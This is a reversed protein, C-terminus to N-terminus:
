YDAFAACYKAWDGPAVLQHFTPDSGAFKREMKVSVSASFFLIEIKVTLSAQGWMSGAHAGGVGKSSYTLALYFELSVTIIGLVSLSGSARFYGTLEFGAGAKQFYFGGMISAAGSAVGLNIAASAGFEMAAEVMKVGAIGIDIGFFGGGGFLSVTLIFPQQRECFAFHFNLEKGTLLPLFVGASLSINQMSFIGVGVTPIGLSYGLRVGEASVALDPPDSFGDLPIIELLRNVFALIGKFEFKDLDVSVDPKEGKVATFRLTRFHLAVLQMSPLLNVTFNTLKGELRFAPPSGNLPTEVISEISFVSGNPTFLEYSRLGNGSTSWVYTTRLTDIGNVKEVVSKLAPINPGATFAHGFDAVNNLIFGLPIGGLLKVDEFIKEVVFGGDLVSTKVPSNGPSDYEYETSDVPGLSRSLATIKIDPAALGGGKDVQFNLAETKRLNVFVEGKNGIQTQGGTAKYTDEYAIEYLKPTGLMRTISPVDVSGYKMAPLFRPGQTAGPKPLASFSIQDTDLTTDGPKLSPAYAVAQGKVPRLRRAHTEGTQVEYHNIVQDIQNKDVDLSVFILPTTFEVPQKQWDYGILHFPFDVSEGSALTVRPWFAEQGLVSSPLQSPDDLNPTVKSKIVVRRFPLDRHTYSLERQRVIVYMRQFLYATYGPPDEQYFFKRETIKVLSARHGFPFLFGAYVVRVYQDRAMSAHHIWQEVTLLNEAPTEIEDVVPWGGSVKFWAGLTSLIFQDAEVPEPTYSGKLSSLYYNSTLHVLENRDRGTLSMRFPLNSHPQLSSSNFDPSWIARMQLDDNLSAATLRTHWLETRNLHTVPTNSHKWRGQEDPSLILRYPAEIATIRQSPFGIVPPKPAGWPYIFFAQLCGPPRWKVLPSLNPPLAQMAELLGELTYPIVAGNPITFVLRSPGSLRAQMSGPPPPAPSGAPQPDWSQQPPLSFTGANEYVAEEAMHQPHFYVALFSQQLGKVIGPQGGAPQVFDVQVFEFILELLDQPRVVKVVFNQAM